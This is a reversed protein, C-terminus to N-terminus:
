EFSVRQANAIGKAIGAAVTDMKSTYTRMDNSNDIFCIELLVAPLKGSVVALQMKGKGRDRLGLSSVLNSHVSNQLTSSGYAANQTHIYSETGTGGGANFHISVLVGCDLMSAQTQRLKYYGSKNVYVELGYQSRLVNAVKDALQQTQEAEVYGGSVAGPDWGWGTGSSDQGHGADIYVKFGEIDTLKYGKAFAVQAKFANSYVDKGGLFIMSAPRGSVPVNVTVKPGQNDLLALLRKQKGQMTGGGLSDPAKLGSAFAVGEWTFGYNAVAYDNILRSTDYRTDGGLRTTTGVQKLSNEATSSVVTTGGIILIKNKGSAKIADAQATPLNDSTDTFFIPAKLSYAVPSVSLADAFDMGTAVIATDGSWLNNEVGYNYIAMQTDFRTAGELRVVNSALSKLQSETNESVVDTGGLIIINSPSLTRIADSTASSLSDPHVLLIPADLAGALSSGAISDAYTNGGTVIVTDAHSFSHLAEAASTEYRTAGGITTLAKSGSAYTSIGNSANWEDPEEATVDGNAIANAIEEASLDNQDGDEPTAFAMTPPVALCMSLATVLFLRSLHKM